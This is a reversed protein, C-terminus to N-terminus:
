QSLEAPSTTPPTPRGSGGGYCKSDGCRFGRLCCGRGCPVQGPLCRIGLGRRGQASMTDGAGDVRVAEDASGGEAQALTISPAAPAAIQDILSQQAHAASLGGLLMVLALTLAALASQSRTFTTSLASTHAM